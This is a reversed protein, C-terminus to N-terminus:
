GVHSAREPEHPLRIICRGAGTPSRTSRENLHTPDSM